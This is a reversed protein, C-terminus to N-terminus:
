QCLKNGTEYNVAWFNFFISFMAFWAHSYINGICLARKKINCILSYLNTEITSQTGRVHIYKTRGNYM